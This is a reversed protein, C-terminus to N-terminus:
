DDGGERREVDQEDLEAAVVENDNEDESTFFVLPEDKATFEEESTDVEEAYWVEVEENEFEEVGQADFVVEDDDENAFWIEKDLVVEDDVLSAGEQEEEFVVDDYVPLDEEEVPDIYEWVVVNEGVTTSDHMHEWEYREAYSHNCSTMKFYLIVLLLMFAIAVICKPLLHNRRTSRSSSSHHENNNDDDSSGFLVDMPIAVYANHNDSSTM